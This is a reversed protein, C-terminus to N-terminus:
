NKKAQEDPLPMKKLREFIERGVLVVGSELLGPRAHRLMQEVFRQVALDITLRYDNLDLVFAFPIGGDSAERVNNGLLHLNGRVALRDHLLVHHQIHLTFATGPLHFGSEVGIVANWNVNKLLVTGEGGHEQVDVTGDGLRAHGARMDFLLQVSTAADFRADQLCIDTLRFRYPGPLTHDILYTEGNTIHLGEVIVLGRRPLLRTKQFSDIRNEYEVYLDRAHVNILRLRPSSPSLLSLLSVRFHMSGCRLLLRDTGPSDWELHLSSARFHFPSLFGPGSLRLRLAPWRRMLMRPLFRSLAIPTSLLALLVLLVLLVSPSPFLPLMRQSPSGVPM